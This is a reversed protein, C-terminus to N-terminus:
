VRHAAGSPVASTVRYDTPDPTRTQQWYELLSFPWNQAVRGSEAKYWSNVTSVGWAMKLNGEDIRVNYADHVDQRCDASAWENRLLMEIMGLTYHVECESFYIISGNVVINTNPGYCFFLNPFGPHVIGLYARADGDWVDHLNRGDVGVVKMPTLFKSAHFGTAFIIVDATHRVESGDAAMTVVADPEIRAIPSGDLTVDDRRITAPWAGNDLVIRKSAPPYTPRVM